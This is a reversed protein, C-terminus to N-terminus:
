ANASSIAHGARNQAWWRFETTFEDPAMEWKKPSAKAINELESKYADRERELKGVLRRDAIHSFEWERIGQREFFTFITEAAAHVETPIQSLPLYQSCPLPSSDSSANTEPKNDTMYKDKTEPKKHATM